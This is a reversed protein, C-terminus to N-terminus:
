VTGVRYTVLMRKMRVILYENRASSYLVSNEYDAITGRRKRRHVSLATRRFGLGILDKGPLSVLFHELARHCVNRMDMPQFECKGSPLVFDM